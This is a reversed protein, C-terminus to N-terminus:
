RFVVLLLGTVFAAVWWLYAGLSYVHLAKPVITDTSNKRSFRWILITDILMATLSSYGLFGHLTFAGHSSGIIMFTTAIIDLIVGLTLFTLIFRNVLRKRQETIIAVSYSALAFIVITAGIKSFINM